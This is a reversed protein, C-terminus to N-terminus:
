GFALASLAARQEDLTKPVQQAVAKAKAKAKGRAKAKPAAADAAPADLASIDVLAKLSPGNACRSGDGLTPDPALMSALGDASSDIGAEATAKIRTTEAESFAGGSTCWFRVSSADEPCPSTHPSFYDHRNQVEFPASPKIQFMFFPFVFLLYQLCTCGKRFGPM